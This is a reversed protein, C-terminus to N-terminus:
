NINKKIYVRRGKEIYYKGGRLGTHIKNNKFKLGGSMMSTSRQKERQDNAYSKIAQNVNTIGKNGAYLVIRSKISKIPRGDNLEEKLEKIRDNPILKFIYNNSLDDIAKFMNNNGTTDMYELIEQIIVDTNIGGKLNRYAQVKENLTLIDSRPSAAGGGGGGGPRNNPGNNPQKIVLTPYGIQNIKSCTVTMDNHLETGSLVLMQQEIPVGISNQIRKKIQAITNTGNVNNLEIRTGASTKVFIPPM